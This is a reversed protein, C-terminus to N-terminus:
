LYYPPVFSEGYEELNKMQENVTVGHFTFILILQELMSFIDIEEPILMEEHLYNTFPQLIWCMEYFTLDEYIEGFEVFRPDIIVIPRGIEFRRKLMDEPFYRTRHDLFLHVAYDGYNDKDIKVLSGNHSLRSLDLEQKEESKAHLVQFLFQSLRFALWDMELQIYNELNEDNVTDPYLDYEDSHNMFSFPFTLNKFYVYEVNDLSSNQPYNASDDFDSRIPTADLEEDGDVDLEIDNKNDNNKPSDIQYDEPIKKIENLILFSHDKVENRIHKAFYDDVKDLVDFMDFYPDDEDIRNILLTHVLKIFNLDTMNDLIFDKVTTKM